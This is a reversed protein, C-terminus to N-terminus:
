KLLLGGKDIMMQRGKENQWHILEKQMCYRLMHSYARINQDALYEDVLAKEENSLHITVTYHKREAKPKSCGSQVWFPQISFRKAYAGVQEPHIQLEEAIAAKTLIRGSTSLTKMKEFISLPIPEDEFLAEPKMHLLISLLAYEEPTAIEMKRLRRAHAATIREGFVEKVTTSGFQKTLRDYLADTDWSRRNVNGSLLLGANEVARSLNFTQTNAEQEFPMQYWQHLLFTLEREWVNTENSVNVTRLPIQVLQRSLPMSNKQDALQLRCLHKACLPMLWIQHETHWFAEGFRDRDEQVCLPCYRLPHEQLKKTLSLLAPQINEGACFQELYRKKQKLPIFRMRFSFLSHGLALMRLNLVDYPLQKVIQHMTENPMLDGVKPYSTHNPFLLALADSWYAIGSHIYFRAIASYWLEDPYLTPFFGIM